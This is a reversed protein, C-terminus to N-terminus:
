VRARAQGVVDRVARIVADPRDFCLRHHATDDLIRQEGHSVSGVLAADMRVKAENIERLTREPTLARQGPDVGVVTLAIVPVDPVGPGTRLETALAALGTREAMGSELWAESTKGDSLARRVERPLQAYLETHVAHLEPRMRLLQERGPAMREIEALRAEPPMFDDWSRQFADLLVLGAVDQPYLQAFRHAYLGGLSHPVLVYPGPLGQTRLLERLEAAVSTATRPLPTGPFPTAPFPTRESFGTGGRDYSVTTTFQSIGQQVGYYDLGVAGAGPLFVVAPGGTGTRHVFLRRGDLDQFTGLPPTLSATSHTM